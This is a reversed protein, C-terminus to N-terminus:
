KLRNHDIICQHWIKFFNAKNFFNRIVAKLSDGQIHPQHSSITCIALRFPIYYFFISSAVISIATQVYFNTGYHIGYTMHTM